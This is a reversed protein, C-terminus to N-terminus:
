VKFEDKENLGQKFKEIFEMTAASANKSYLLNYSTQFGWEVPLNVLSPHLDDWIDLSLLLWGKEICLNFTSMDFYAPQEELIIQTHNQELFTIVANAEDSDERRYTILHEGYLDEVTLKKKKALRHTRPLSICMDCDFLKLCNANNLLKKSNFAVTMLDFKIGLSSLLVNLLGSSDSYPILTFKFEDADPSIKDWLNIFERGSNMISSGLRLSKLKNGQIKKASSVAIACEHIINESAIYMQRGADTLEAGRATRRFLTIGIRQELINIQKMVSAPTIFLEEAAKSFSGVKAVTVFTKLQQSIM